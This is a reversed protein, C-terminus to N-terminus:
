EANEFQNEYNSKKNEASKLIAKIGKIIGFVVLYIVIFVISLYLTSAPNVSYPSLPMFILIFDLYLLIFFAINRSMLPLKELKFIQVAAAAALATLIYMAYTGPSFVANIFGLAALVFDPSNGEVSTNIFRNFMFAIVALVLPMVTFYICTKTLIDKILVLINKSKM